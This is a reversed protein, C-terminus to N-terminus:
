HGVAIWKIRGDYFEPHSRYTGDGQPVNVITALIFYTCGRADADLVGVKGPGDIAYLTVMVDDGNFARAFGIAGRVYRGEDDMRTSAQVIGTQIAVGGATTTVKPQSVPGRLSSWCGSALLAGLALATITSCPPRM